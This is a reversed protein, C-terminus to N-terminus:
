INASLIEFQRADVKTKNIICIRVEIDTKFYTDPIRNLYSKLAALEEILYGNKKMFWKCLFNCNKGNCPEGFRITFGNDSLTDRDLNGYKCGKENEVQSLQSIEVDIKFILKEEIQKPKLVSKEQEQISYKTQLTYGKTMLHSIWHFASKESMQEVNHNLIPKSVRYNDMDLVDAVRLLIKDFKTSILSNRANSKTKYIDDTNQGHASAIEAVKERLCDELFRLDERSRIEKASDSAHYDRVEGEYFEDIKKYVDFLMKKVEKIDRNDEKQVNELYEVSIEDSKENDLLFLEAPPIKVMSIDHLYCAIFLIYFDTSSIQLYDIAKILKIINKILDIAHEQNHLTYFYLYKSGNKWVDCTYQHIKILHDIRAPKRVYQRFVDLVEMIAYDIKRQNEEDKWIEPITRYMTEDFLHNRLLALVRLEGYLLTKRNCKALLMQDNMQVNFLHSYIANLTMRKMESTNKDVIRIWKLFRQSFIGTDSLLNEWPYKQVKGVIDDAASGNAYRYKSLKRSVLKELSEYPNKSNEDNHANNLFESFAAEIYSVKCKKTGFLKENVAYIYKKLWKLDEDDLNRICLSIYASWIDQKFAEAFKEEFNPDSVPILISTDTISLGTHKTQVEMKLKRYKFFKYYRPLKKLYAESNEKSVDDRGEKLDKEVRKIESSVADMLVSMKETLNEEESDSYNSYFDMGVQSVERSMSRLYIEGYNAKRINSYTSKDDMGYVEITQEHNRLFDTLEDNYIRFFDETKQNELSILNKIDRNISDLKKQFDNEDEIENCFIVSDDVYFLSKGPFYKEFIKAIEIMCINGLFYSQPLGQAIGLAFDTQNEIWDTEYYLKRTSEDLNIVKCVLLKILLIKYIRKEEETLNAPLLRLIQNYVMPISVSPFFNKLDLDVEFNYEHTEHYSKFLGNAKQSYDRYQTKWPKFLVEPRTSVRNGYFNEPILRSINSLTLEEDGNNPEYIFMNLISVSAIQYLISTTHLPRFIMKGADKDYKKPKFYVKAEIFKNENSVLEDLIERVKDIIDGIKRENFKDRLLNFLKKDQASLLEKNFIYSDLSYIALYINEDSTLRNYVATNKIDKMM